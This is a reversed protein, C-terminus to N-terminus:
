SLQLKLNYTLNLQNLKLYGFVSQGKQYINFTFLSRKAESKSDASLLLSFLVVLKILRIM